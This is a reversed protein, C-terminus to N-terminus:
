QIGIIWINWLHKWRLIGYPIESPITNNEVLIRVINARYKLIYKIIVIYNYVLEVSDTKQTWTTMVISSIDTSAAIMTAMNINSGGLVILRCSWLWTLPGEFISVLPSMHTVCNVICWCRLNYTIRPCSKNEAFIFTMSNIFRIPCFIKSRYSKNISLHIVKLFAFSEM